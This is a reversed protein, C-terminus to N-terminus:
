QGTFDAELFRLRQRIKTEMMAAIPGPAGDLSQLWNAFFVRGVDRGCLSSRGCKRKCRAMWEKRKKQWTSRCGGANSGAFFKVAMAPWPSLSGISVVAGCGM